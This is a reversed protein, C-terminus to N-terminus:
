ESIRRETHEVTSNDVKRLNIGIQIFKQGVHCVEPQCDQVGALPLLQEEWYLLSDVRDDM